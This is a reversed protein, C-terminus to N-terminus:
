RCPSRAVHGDEAGLVQARHDEGGQRGQGAAGAAASAPESGSPGPPMPGSGTSKVQFLQSCCASSRSQYSVRTDFRPGSVVRFPWTITMGEGSQFVGTLDVGQRQAPPVADVVVPRHVGVCDVGLAARWYRHSSMRLKSLEPRSGPLGAAISIKKTVLPRVFYEASASDAAPGCGCTRRPVKLRVIESDRPCAPNRHRPWRTPSRQIDEAAAVAAVGAGVRGVVRSHPVGPPGIQTM